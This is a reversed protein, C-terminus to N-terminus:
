YIDGAEHREAAFRSGYISPVSLHISVRGNCVGIGHVIHATCYRLSGSVDSTQIVDHHGLATWGVQQTERGETSAALHRRVYAITCVSVM